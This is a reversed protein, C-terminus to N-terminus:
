QLAGANLAARSGRDEFEIEALAELAASVARRADGLRVDAAQLRARARALDAVAALRAEVAAALATAEGARAALEIRRMDDLAELRGLASGVLRVDVRGALWDKVECRALEIRGLRRDREALALAAQREAARAAQLAAMAADTRRERLNRLRRLEPLPGARKM